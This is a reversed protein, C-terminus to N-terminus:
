EVQIFIKNRANRKLYYAEPGHRGNPVADKQQGRMIGARSETDEQKKYNEEEADTETKKLRQRALRTAPLDEDVPCIDAM